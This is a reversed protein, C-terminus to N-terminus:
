NYQKALGDFTGSSIDIQGVVDVLYDIAFATQNSVVLFKNKLADDDYIRAGKFSSFGLSHSARCSVRNNGTGARYNCRTYQHPLIKVGDRCYVVMQTATGEPILSGIGCM